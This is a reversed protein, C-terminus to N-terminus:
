REPGPAPPSSSWGGWSTGHRPRSARASTRRGRRAPRQRPRSCGARGPTSNPTRTGPVAGGAGPTERRWHIEDGPVALAALIVGASPVGSRALAAVADALLDLSDDFSRDAPVLLSTDPELDEPATWRSYRGQAGGRRIWGHRALLACLVAPEVRAPDPLPVDALPSGPLPSGAEGAGSARVVGRLTATEAQRTDRRM